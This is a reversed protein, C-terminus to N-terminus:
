RRNKNPDKAETPTVVVPQASRKGDDNKIVRGHEENIRKDKRDQDKNTM